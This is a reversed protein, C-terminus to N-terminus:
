NVMSEFLDSYAKGIIARSYRSKVAMYGAHGMKELEGKPMKRVELVTKALAVPDEPSCVVGAHLYQILKASEGETAALITRGAALYGYTKSPITIEFVPDRKLHILLVDALAMYRAADSQSRSGLFRVNDLGMQQARRELESREVGDGIIVFHIDPSGQLLVAADLVVGLAQAIGINGVYVINFFGEFDEEQAMKADSEFPHFTSDNAWNPIVHIKDPKVGKKMLISKFGETITVISPAHHFVFHEENELLRYAAKKLGIDSTIGWDPWLDQVEHILPVKWLKSLIIGPLGIQYTWLADPKQIYRLSSYIASLSFSFYSLVRRFASRSRDIRHPIRLVKVNDIEEWKSPGFHYGPYIQGDPYNPYATVVSVKHGLQELTMALDHPRAVPEPKYFLSLLLIRM